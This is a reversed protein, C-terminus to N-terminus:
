VSIISSILFCVHTEAKFMIGLSVTRIKSDFLKSRAAWYSPLKTIVTGYLKAPLGIIFSPWYVKTKNFVLNENVIYLAKLM